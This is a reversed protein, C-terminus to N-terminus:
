SYVEYKNINLLRNSDSAGAETGYVAHELRRKAFVRDATYTVFLFNGPILFM